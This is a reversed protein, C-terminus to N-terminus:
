NSVPSASSEVHETCSTFNVHLRVVNHLLQLQLVHSVQYVHTANCQGFSVQWYNRALEPQYMTAPLMLSTTQLSVRTEPPVGSHSKCLSEPQMLVDDPKSALCTHHVQVVAPTEAATGSFRQLVSVDPIIEQGESKVQRLM